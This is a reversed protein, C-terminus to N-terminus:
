RIYFQFSQTKSQFPEECWKRTNVCLAVLAVGLSGVHPALDIGTSNDGITRDSSGPQSRILGVVSMKRNIVNRCRLVLLLQDGRFLPAAPLRPKSCYRSM